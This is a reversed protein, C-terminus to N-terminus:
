EVVFRGAKWGLVLVLIAVGVNGTLLFIGEFCVEFVPKVVRIFSICDRRRTWKPAKVISGEGSERRRARPIRRGSHAFNVDRRVLGAKRFGPVTYHAGLARIV